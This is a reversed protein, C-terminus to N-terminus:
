NVSITFHINCVLLLLNNLQFQLIYIVFGYCDLKKVTSTALPALIESRM